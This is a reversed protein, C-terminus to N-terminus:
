PLSARVLSVDRWLHTPSERFADGRRFCGQGLALWLLRASKPAFATTRRLANQLVTPPEDPRGPHKLLAGSTTPRRRHNSLANEACWGDDEVPEAIATREAPSFFTGVEALLDAPQGVRMLVVQRAHVDM